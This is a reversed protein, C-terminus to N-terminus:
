RRVQLVYAQPMENNKMYDHQYYKLLSVGFISSCITSIFTRGIESYLTIERLLM